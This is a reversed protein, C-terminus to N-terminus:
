KKINKKFIMVIGGVFFVLALILTLTYDKGKSIQLMFNAVEFAGAIIFLIGAIKNQKEIKDM